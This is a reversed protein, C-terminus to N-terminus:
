RKKTHANFIAADMERITTTHANARRARLLGKLEAVHGGAARVIVEGRDNIVFDLRDGTSVRLRERIPKPVTMQGKSTM